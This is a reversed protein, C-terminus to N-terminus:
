SNPEGYVSIMAVSLLLLAIGLGQLGTIREGLLSVAGITTVGLSIGISIPFAYSAQSVSLIFIWLVFSSGYLIVGLLGSLVTTPEWSFSNDQLRSGAFRLSLVGLGSAAAQILVLAWISNNM